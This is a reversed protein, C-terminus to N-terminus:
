SQPTVRTQLLKETVSNRGFFIDHVSPPYSPHFSPMKSSGMMKENIRASFRVLSPEGNM